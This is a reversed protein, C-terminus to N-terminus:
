KSSIFHPKISRTSPELGTFPNQDEPSWHLHEPNECAFWHWSMLGKFAWKPEEGASNCGKAQSEWWKLCSFFPSWSRILEKTKSSELCWARLVERAALLLRAWSLKLQQGLFHKGCMTLVGPARTSIDSYCRVKGLIWATCCWGRAAWPAPEWCLNPCLEWQMPQSTELPSLRFRWNRMDRWTTVASQLLGEVVPITGQDSVFLLTYWFSVMGSPFLTVYSHSFCTDTFVERSKLM